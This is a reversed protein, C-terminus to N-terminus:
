LWTGRIRDPGGVPPLVGWASHVQWHRVWPQAILCSHPHDQGPAPCLSDSDSCSSVLVVTPRPLLRVWSQAIVPLGSRSQDPAPRASGSDSDSPAAPALLGGGAASRSLLRVWLNHSIRLRAPWTRTPCLPLGVVRPWLRLAWPIGAHPPLRPSGEPPLLHGAVQLVM